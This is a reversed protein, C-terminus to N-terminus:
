LILFLFIIEGEGAHITKAGREEKMIAKFVDKLDVLLQRSLDGDFKDPVSALASAKWTNIEEQKADTHPDCFGAVALLGTKTYRLRRFAYFRCFIDPMKKNRQSQTWRCERCKSLKPAVEFCSADQLFTESTKKLVHLPARQFPNEQLAGNKAMVSNMKIRDERSMSKGHAHHHKKLKKRLGGVVPSGSESKESVTRRSSSTADSYVHDEDSETFSDNSNNNGPRSRRPYREKAGSSPRGRAEASRNRQQQGPSNRRSSSADEESGGGSSSSSASRKNGSSATPSSSHGNM